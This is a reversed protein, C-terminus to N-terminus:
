GPPEAVPKVPNERAGCFSSFFSVLASDVAGEALLGAKPPNLPLVDVGANPALNGSAGIDLAAASLLVAVLGVVENPEVVSVNPDVSADFDFSETGVKVTAAGAGAGARVGAGAAGNPLEFVALLKPPNPPLEAGVIGANLKPLESLFASRPFVFAVAPAGLVVISLGEVPANTNPAELLALVGAANGNPLVFAVAGLVPVVIKPAPVASAFLDNPVEVAGKANPALVAEVGAGAEVDAM